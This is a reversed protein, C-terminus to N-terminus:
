LSKVRDIIEHPYFPRGDYKLLNEKIEIGTREKILGGMQATYNCEVNLIKDAKKLIKTIEETPFPNVWLLQLFNVDNLAKLAELIPGKNSGWSVITNKADKPGHLVPKEMDENACTILKQMRKEMQENRNQIEENSYGYADHEDSNAVFHNGTGPTSRLSIGDEALEYRKYGDILKSSFKGRDIEFSDYNFPPTSQTGELNYKDALVIVPTQYKEALNFAKMTTHFCEEIDGPALVIRPFDSQHAHLVFRLDGQETWTPLGTGPGGRMGEIIVVPTETLGALGFGESMLAFGGGSTAVMTRAGAYAAGIAMNIAAIEDEPQKYIFGLKEQHPALTHLINSTPTMPYIAAFSLGAAMAGLGIAENGTMTVQPEVKEKQKLVGLVDKKYKKVAYDHAKKCAKHNIDIIEQKKHGFQEEIMDLLHQLNGGLLGIAAGLAVTNRMILSGEVELVIDVLPIEVVEVGKPLSSVDVDSRHDYLVLADKVLEDKHLDITEQNLAILFDTTEYQSYVPEDSLTVQIVNHGGRILSPYESYTHAYYGSRTAIKSLVKGAAMIGFGAEGGIKVTYNSLM